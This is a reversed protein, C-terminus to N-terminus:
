LYYKKQWTRMISVVHRWTPEKSLSELASDRVGMLELLVDKMTDHHKETDWEGVWDEGYYAQHRMNFLRVISKRYTEYRQNSM